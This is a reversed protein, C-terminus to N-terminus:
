PLVEAAAHLLRARDAEVRRAALLLSPVAVLGLQATLFIGWTYSGLSKSLQAAVVGGLSAGLLNLWIILFAIMTSRIRLPSLEQVTAYVPGYMMTVYIASIFCCAPFLISDAPLFRFAIGAPAIALQLCVLALLRGGGVYRHFLDGLWGGLFSGLAGGAVLNVGLFTAAPGREFGREKVLWSADLWAAGVGINIAVAGVMTMVLAPSRALARFVETLQQGISHATTSKPTHSATQEMGGRLPDKLLAVVAVLLVGIFGLIKYCGRWGINPLPELVGAVILSLGAGL